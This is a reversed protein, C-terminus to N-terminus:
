WSFLGYLCSFYLDNLFSVFLNDLCSFIYVIGIYITLFSYYKTPNITWWYQALKWCWILLLFFYLCNIIYVLKWVNGKESWAVLWNTVHSITLWRSKTSPWYYLHSLWLHDLWSHDLSWNPLWKKLKSWHFYPLWPTLLSHYIVIAVSLIIAVPILRM